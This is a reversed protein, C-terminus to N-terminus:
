KVLDAGIDELHKMCSVCMDGGQIRPERRCWNCLIKVPPVEMYPRERGCDACVHDHPPGKYIEGETQGCNICPEQLSTTVCWHIKSWDKCTLNDHTQKDWRDCWIGVANGCSACCNPKDEVTGFILDGAVCIPCKCKPDDGPTFLEDIAKEIEPTVEKGKWTTIYNVATLSKLFEGFRHLTCRCPQQEPWDGETSMGNIRAWNLIMDKEQKDM